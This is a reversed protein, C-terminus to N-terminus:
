LMSINGLICQKATIPYSPIALGARIRNVKILVLYMCNCQFVCCSELTLTDGCVHDIFIYLM